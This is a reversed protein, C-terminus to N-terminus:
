GGGVFRVIELRDSEELTVDRYCGKELVKGNREVVVTAADLKLASLLDGATTGPAVVEDKGNIRVRM